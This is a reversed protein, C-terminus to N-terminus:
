GTRREILYQLWNGSTVVPLESPREDHPNLFYCFCEYRDGHKDAVLIPRRYYFHPVGELQDLRELASWDRLEYVEGLILVDDGSEILAPFHHFSVMRYRDITRAKAVFHSRGVLLSHNGLGSLLSGYVFVNM